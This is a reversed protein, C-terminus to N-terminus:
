FSTPSKKKDKEDSAVAYAFRDLARVRCAETLLSITKNQTQTKFWLRIIHLTTPKGNWKIKNALLQANRMKAWSLAHEQRLLSSNQNTGKDEVLQLVLIQEYLPLVCISRVARSCVQTRTCARPTNPAHSPSGMPYTCVWLCCVERVLSSVCGM